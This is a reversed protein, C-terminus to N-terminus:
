TQDYTEASAERNKMRGNRCATYMKKLFYTKREAM